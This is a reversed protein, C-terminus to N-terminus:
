RDCKEIEFSVSNMAFGNGRGKTFDARKTKGFHCPGTSGPDALTTRRIKEADRIQRGTVSRRGIAPAPDLGKRLRFPDRTPRPLFLAAASFFRCFRGGGSLTGTLTRFGYRGGGGSDTGFGGM